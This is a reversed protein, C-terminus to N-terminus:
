AAADPNEQLVMSGDANRTIGMAQDILAQAEQQLASLQAEQLAQSAPAYKALPISAELQNIQDIIPVLAPNLDAFLEPDTM